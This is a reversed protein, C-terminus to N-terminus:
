KESKQCKPCIGFIEFKYSNIKYNHQKQMFKVNKEITKSYFETIHGCKLCILHGHEPAQQNNIEFFGRKEGFTHEVLIGSDVLLRITRYVTAIGIVPDTKLLDSYIDDTTFHGIKKVINEFILDRRKSSKLGNLKIYDKYQNKLNSLTM